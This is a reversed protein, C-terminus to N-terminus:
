AQFIALRRLLAAAADADGGITVADAPLRHWLALDLNSATGSITADAAEAPERQVTVFEPELTVTWHHGTDTSVVSIVAAPDTQPLDSWDGSIFVSLLEDVGDAAITPDIDSPLGAASLGDFGHIAIEQAMRRHWFGVTRNSPDWTWCEQAPDHTAFADLLDETALQLRNIPGTGPLSKPPWPDPEVRERISLAKHRYVESVHDLLDTMTWGPCAPIALDLRGGAAALLQETRARVFPAFRAFLGADM